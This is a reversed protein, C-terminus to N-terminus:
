PSAALDPREAKLEAFSAARLKHRCHPHTSLPSIHDKKLDVFKKREWENCNDAGDIDPRIEPFVAFVERNAYLLADSFGSLRNQLATRGLRAWRALSKPTPRTTGFPLKRVLQWVRRQSASGRLDLRLELDGSPVEIYDVVCEAVAPSLEQHRRRM